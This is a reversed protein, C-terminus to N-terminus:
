YTQIVFAAGQRSEQPEDYLGFEWTPGFETIAIPTELDYSSLLDIADFYGNVAGDVFSWSHFAFFDLVGPEGPNVYNDTTVHDLFKIGLESNQTLEIPQSAVPGGVRGNPLAALVG